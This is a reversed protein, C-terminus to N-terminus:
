LDPVNQTKHTKQAAQVKVCFHFKDESHRIKFCRYILRSIIEYRPSIVCEAKYCGSDGLQPVRSARTIFIIIISQKHRGMKYSGSCKCLYLSASMEDCVRACVCVCVCLRM